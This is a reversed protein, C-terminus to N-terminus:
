SGAQLRAARRKLLRGPTTVLLFLFGFPALLMQGFTFGLRRALGVEVTPHRLQTFLARTGSFVAWVVYRRARATVAAPPRAYLADLARERDNGMFHAYTRIPHDFGAYDEEGQLFERNMERGLDRYASETMLLYEDSPVSNKLLRHALIVDTGALQPSGGITHFVARGTHVIVKLKLHDAHKCIACACQTSEAATVMAELFAEFFRVLKTRVQALVDRWGQDDGPHAAYLFVADGEIAQLELPIDVERLITEILFTICQQGHVASLQNEVMFKTYGSIDALIM